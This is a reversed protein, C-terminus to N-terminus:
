VKSAILSIRFVDEEQNDKMQGFAVTAENNYEVCLSPATVLEFNGEENAVYVAYNVLLVDNQESAFNAEIYMSDNSYIVASEQMDLQVETAICQKGEGPLTMEINSNFQVRASALSCTALLGLTFLKSSIM